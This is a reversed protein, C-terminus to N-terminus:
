VGYNQQLIKILCPSLTFCPILNRKAIIKTQAIESMFRDQEFVDAESSFDPFILTPMTKSMPPFFSRENLAAAHSPTFRAALSKSM